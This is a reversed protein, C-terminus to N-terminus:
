SRKALKKEPGRKVAEAAPRSNFATSLHTLTWRWDVAGVVGGVGGVGGIGGVGVWWRFM